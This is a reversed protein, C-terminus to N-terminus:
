YNQHLPLEIPRVADGRTSTLVIKIDRSSGFSDAFVYSNWGLFAVHDEVPQGDALKPLTSELAVTITYMAGRSGLVTIFYTCHVCADVDTKPDIDIVDPGYM